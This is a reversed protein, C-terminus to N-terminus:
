HKSFYESWVVQASKGAWKRVQKKMLQGTSKHEKHIVRLAPDWYVKLGVRRTQEALHFEEGFMFGKYQLSAGRKFYEDRLFVASGHASYIEKMTLGNQVSVRGRKTRSLTSVRRKLDRRLKVSSQLCYTLIASRWIVTYALVRTRSPRRSFYPNQQSGDRLRTIAPALIGVDEPVELLSLRLFFDSAFELDTNVVGVWAPFEGTEQIWGELAYSCGGLYGLNRKPTYVSFGDSKNGVDKWTRSNDAIAIAIQGNLGLSLKRIQRIFDEVQVTDYFHVACMLIKGPGCKNSLM